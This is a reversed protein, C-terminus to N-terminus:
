QYYTELAQKPNENILVANVDNTDRVKGRWIDGCEWCEGSNITMDEKNNCLFARANTHIYTSVGEQM